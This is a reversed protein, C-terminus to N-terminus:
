LVFNKANNSLKKAEKRSTDEQILSTCILDFIEVKSVSQGFKNLKQLFKDM